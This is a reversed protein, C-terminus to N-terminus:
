NKVEIGHSPTRFMLIKSPQNQEFLDFGAFLGEYHIEQVFIALKQHEIIIIHM